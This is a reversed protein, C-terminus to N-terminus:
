EALVSLTVAPAALKRIALDVLVDSMVSEAPATDTTPSMSMVPPAIVFLEDNVVVPVPLMVIVPVPM